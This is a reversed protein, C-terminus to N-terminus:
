PLPKRRLRPLGPSGGLTGSTSNAASWPNRQHSAQDIGCQKVQQLREDPQAQGPARALLGLIQAVDAFAVPKRLLRYRRTQKPQVGNRDALRPRRFRQDLRQEVLERIM